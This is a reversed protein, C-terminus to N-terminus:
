VSLWLLCKCRCWLILWCYTWCRGRRDEEERREEGAEWMWTVSFFLLLLMILYDCFVKLSMSCLTYADDRFSSTCIYWLLIYQCWRCAYICEMELQLRLEAPNECSSHFSNPSANIAFHHCSSFFWCICQLCIYIYYIHVGLKWKFARVTGHSLTLNWCICFVFVM